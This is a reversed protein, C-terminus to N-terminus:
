ASIKTEWQRTSKAKKTITMSSTASGGYAITNPLIKVKHKGVTLKNTTFGCIGKDKGNKKTKLTVIKYKKGTYILLKVKVGNIPKKTKKNLVQILLQAGDKATTKQVKFKIAKQKIVKISSSLTNFNYRSDQASVKVKHTGKSLKKTQYSAVGKSNTKVRVTKYKKGTYVKLTLLMNSIPKNNRSDVLTLTWSGSKKYAVTVKSAKIVATAKNVTVTLDRYVSNHYEDPITTVRLVYNGVALNSVTLLNNKFTIKAEPHNLVQIKSTDMVGGDVRVYISGTAGYNFIMGASFTVKSDVKIIDFINSSDVYLDNGYISDEKTEGEEMLFYNSFLYSVYDSYIDRGLNAFNGKFSSNQVRNNEGLIIAGGFSQLANNDNFICKDITLGQSYSYIAGGGVSIIDPSDKIYNGTFNSRIIKNGKSGTISIAGGLKSARNENFTCNDILCNEGNLMIAGGEKGAENKNFKCNTVNCNNAELFIAGGVGGKANCNDFSCDSILGDSGQWLIAGGNGSTDGSVFKINSLVVNSATKDIVFFGPKSIFATPYKVTAGDGHGIINITKNIKVADSLEFTGNLVITDGENASDIEAQIDEGSNLNHTSKLPNEDDSVEGVVEEVVNDNLTQTEGDDLTDEASVHSIACIGVLILLIFLIKKSM